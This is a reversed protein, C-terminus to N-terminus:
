EPWRYARQANAGFYQRAAPMGKEDFYPRIIKVVNELSTGNDSVPWNSGFIVREQGFASWVIDLIPRYHATDTPAKGQPRGAQEALASVKCFVRDSEGAARIGDRWEPTLKLPDGASGVHDIVVRLNPVAKILAPVHVLYASSGNLDLSLGADALHRISDVYAAARGQEVLQAGAVRIGRFKPNRAFRQLNTGFEASLPDLNGVVGLIFPERAALDLVWQNDEVWPSAEVVVTGSIGLPGALKRYEAPLVTRYLLKEKPDPLPVGQPRTPDYFHTHTDVIQVPEEARSSVAALAVQALFLRRTIM